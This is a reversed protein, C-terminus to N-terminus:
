EVVESNEIDLIEVNDTATNIIGNENTKMTRQFDEFSQKQQIAQNYIKSQLTVLCNAKDALANMVSEVENTTLTINYMVDQNM